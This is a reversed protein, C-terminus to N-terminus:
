AQASMASAPLRDERQAISRNLRHRAYTGPAGGRLKGRAPATHQALTPDSHTESRARVQVM